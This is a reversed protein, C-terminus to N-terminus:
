WQLALWGQVNKLRALWKARGVAKALHHQVAVHSVAMGDGGCINCGKVDQNSAVKGRGKCALCDNNGSMRAGSSNSLRSALAAKKGSGGCADCRRMRSKGGCAKCRSTLSEEDWYEEFLPEYTFRQELIQLVSRAHRTDNLALLQLATVSYLGALASHNGRTDEIKEAIGFLAKTSELTAAGGSVLTLHHQAAKWYSRQGSGGLMRMSIVVLVIFAVAMLGQKIRYRKADSRAREAKMRDRDDFASFHETM